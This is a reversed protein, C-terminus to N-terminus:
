VKRWKEPLLYAYSNKVSIDSFSVKLEETRGDQQVNLLLSFSAPGRRVPKVMWGAKVGQTTLPVQAETERIPVIDFYASELRVAYIGTIYPATLQEASDTHLPYIVISVHYKWGRTMASEYRCEIFLNYLPRSVVKPAALPVGSPSTRYIKLTFYVIAVIAAIYALNSIVKSIVEWPM